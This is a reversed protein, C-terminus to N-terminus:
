KIYKRVHIDKNGASVELEGVVIVHTPTSVVSVGRDNGNEHVTRKWVILGTASIRYLVLDSAQAGNTEYGVAYITGDPDVAIDLIEDNGARNSTPFHVLGPPAGSGYRLIVSDNDGSHTFFGGVYVHGAADVGVSRGIGNTSGSNDLNDDWTQSVSVPSGDLLRQTRINLGPLVGLSPSLNGSAIISNTGSVAVSYWYSDSTDLPAAPPPSAIWMDSGDDKNHKRLYHQVKNAGQADFGGALVLDGNSDLTLGNPEVRHTVTGGLAVSTWEASEKNTQYMFLRIKGADETVALYVNDLTSQGVPRHNDLDIAVSSHGASATINSVTTVDRPPVHNDQIKAGASSVRLLGITSAERLTLYTTGASNVAAGGAIQDNPFNHTFDWEMDGSTRSGPKWLSVRALDITASHHLYVFAKQTATAATTAVLGNPAGQIPTLDPTISDGFLSGATGKAITSGTTDLVEIADIEYVQQDTALILVSDFAGLAGSAPIETTQSFDGAKKWESTPNGGALIIDAVVQADTKGATALDAVWLTFRQEPPIVLPAKKSGSDRSALYAGLAVDCGAAILPVLVLAALRLPKM